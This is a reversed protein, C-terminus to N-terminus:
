KNAMERALQCWAQKLIADSASNTLPKNARDPYKQYFRQDVQRSSVNAQEMVKGINTCADSSTTSLTTPAVQTPAQTPSPSSVPTSNSWLHRVSGYIASLLWIVLFLSGFGLIGLKLPRRFEQKIPIKTKEAWGPINKGGLVAWTKPVQNSTKQANSGSPPNTPRPAM